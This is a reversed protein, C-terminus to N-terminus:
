LFPAIESFVARGYGCHVHRRARGAVEVAISAILM